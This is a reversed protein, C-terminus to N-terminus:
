YGEEESPRDMSIMERRLLISQRTWICEEDSIGSISFDPKEQAQQPQHQQLFKSILIVSFIKRGELAIEIKGLSILRM